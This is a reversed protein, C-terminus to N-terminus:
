FFFISVLWYNYFYIYFALHSLYSLPFPHTKYPCVTSLKPQALFTLFHDWGLLLLSHALTLPHILRLYTFILRERLCLCATLRVKYCCNSLSQCTLYSRYTMHFLCAQTPIQVWLWRHLNLQYMATGPSITGPWSYSIPTALLFTHYLMACGCGTQSHTRPMSYPMHPQSHGPM